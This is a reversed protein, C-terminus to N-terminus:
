YIRHTIGDDIGFFYLQSGLFLDYEPTPSPIEDQDNPSLMLMQRPANKYTPFDLDAELQMLFVVPITSVFTSPRQRDFMWHPEGGLYSEEEDVDPVSVLTWRQFKVREIYDYRRVAKSTPFVLFRYNREYDDFFTSPIDFDTLPKRIWKPIAQDGHDHDTCAFVALTLGEWVHGQPFGVQFFFSLDAYCIRCTPLSVEAPLAPQGGAFCHDNDAQIDNNEEAGFDIILM